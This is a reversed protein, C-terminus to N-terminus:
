KDGSGRKRKRVVRDSRSTKGARKRKDACEKCHRNRKRDWEEDDFMAEPKTTSCTKCLRKMLMPFCADCSQMKKKLDKTFELEKHKLGKCTWCKQKNKKEACKKCKRRSAHPGTLAWEDDDYKVKCLPSKCDICVKTTVYCTDCKPNQKLDELSKVDRNDRSTLAIAEQEVLEKKYKRFRSKPQVDKCIICECTKGLQFMHTDILADRLTHDKRFHALLIQDHIPIGKQFPEIRFPQMILIDERKCVRSLAIYATMACATAALCLNVVAAVITLGQVSYATQAYAPALPLQRRTIEIKGSMRGKKGFGWNSKQPEIPYVGRLKMGKVQWTANEFKVHVALPLHRLVVPGAGLKRSADDEHLSWGVIVGQSGRLLKHKRNVHDTLVVKLGLTLPIVGYLNGCERDHRQMWQVKEDVASGSGKRKEIDDLKQLCAGDRATDVCQCYMPYQKTVNAYNMARTKNIEFKLDNNPVVYMANNFKTTKLDKTALVNTPSVVRARSARDDKCDDCEKKLIEAATSTTMLLACRKKGCTVDGTIYSGPVSTPKGHLFAHTDVSMKGDRCEDLVSSYWTDNCRHQQTLEIMVDTHEWFLKRGLDDTTYCPAVDDLLYAPVNKLNSQDKIPPLQGFDGILVVNVGGFPRPMNNDDLLYTNAKQVHRQLFVHLQWYLAAEVQSVEEVFLFRLRSVQRMRSRSEAVPKNRQAQSMPNVNAYHHITDGGVMAAVVAQFAVFQFHNGEVLGAATLLERAQTMCTYSKGVGPKGNVLMRLPETKKDEDNAEQRLREFITLLVQYQQANCSHKAANLVDRAAEIDIRLPEPEVNDPLLREDERGTTRANQLAEKLNDTQVKAAKTKPTGVIRSKGDGFQRNVFDFAITMEDRVNVDAGDRDFRARSTTMSVQLQTDNLPKVIYKDDHETEDAEANTRKRFTRQFNNIINVLHESHVEGDVYQRWRENWSASPYQLASLHTVEDTENLVWPSLLILMRRSLEDGDIASTVIAGDPVPVKPVRERQIVYDHQMWPPAANSLAMWPLEDTIGELGRIFYDVGPTLKDSQAKKRWGDDMMKVHSSKMEDKKKSTPITVHKVVYESTFEWVSIDYLQPPRYGYFFPATPREVLEVNNRDRGDKVTNCTVEFDDTSITREIDFYHKVPILVTRNSKFSEAATVDKERRQTLLNFCEPAMLVSGKQTLDTMIRQVHRKLIDSGKLDPNSRLSRGLSSHGDLFRKVKDVCIPQRKSVYDTTYGVIDNQLTEIQRQLRKMAEKEQFISCCKAKEPCLNSHTEPIIPLRYLVMVDTNCRADLALLPHTPRLYPHHLPGEVQGLWSRRGTVNVDFLKAVGECVTACTDKVHEYHNWPFGYKCGHGRKLTCGRLPVRVDGMKPHLHYQFMEQSHQGAEALMNRWTDGTADAGVQRLVLPHGDFAFLPHQSEVYDIRDNFGVVDHMRGNRVYSTWSNFDQFLNTDRDVDADGVTHLGNVDAEAVRAVSSRLMATIEDLSRHQFMCPVYMLFHGHLAQHVQSEISGCYAEVLGLAGGEPEAVSGFGSCCPLDGDNCHPCDPCVRVGIVARLLIMILMRFGLASCLPDQITIRQREESSPFVNQLDRVDIRASTAEAYTAPEFIDGWHHEGDPSVEAHRSKAPDNRRGRHCRLILHTKDLTPSITVMICKGYMVNFGLFTSRMISRTQQSGEQTRLTNDMGSLMEKAIPTVRPCRRLNLVDGNVPMSDGNPSTYTGNLNEYISAIGEDMEDASITRNARRVMSFLQAKLNVTTRVVFNWLAFCFGQDSRFQREARSAFANSWDEKFEVRPGVRHDREVEHEKPNKKPLYDPSGIGLPFNGVFCQPWFQPHFQNLPQAYVDDVANIGVVPHQVEATITEREVDLTARLRTLAHIDETNYDIVNATNQAIVGQRPTRVFHDSTASSEDDYLPTPPAAPTASKDVYSKDPPKSLVDCLFNPVTGDEFIKGGLDTLRAVRHIVDDMNIHRYFRNGSEVFTRILKIVVARRVRGAMQVHQRLAVDRKAITEDDDSDADEEIMRFIVIQVYHMLDEGWRPLLLEHLKAAIAAIDDPRMPWATINGRGGTRHRADHYVDQNLDDYVHLQVQIMNVICVSACTMEVVTVNDSYIVEPTYGTFMDNALGFRPM